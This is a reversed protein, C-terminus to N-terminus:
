AEDARRTVFRYDLLYLAIGLFGFALTCLLAAPKLMPAVAVPHSSWGRSEFEETMRHVERESNLSIILQAGVGTGLGVLCSVISALVPRFSHRKM